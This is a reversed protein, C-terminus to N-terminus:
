KASFERELADLSVSKASRALRDVAIFYDEFDEIYRLIAERAYFAKTRGTRKALRELRREIKPDLRLTLMAM